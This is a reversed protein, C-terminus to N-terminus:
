LFADCSVSANEEYIETIFHTTYREISDIGDFLRNCMDQYEAMDRFNGILIVDSEGTVGYASIIAPEKRIKAAFRLRKPQPHDKTTITIIAKLSRGLKAADAIYIVKKLVGRKKLRGVRRLCTSATSSIRDALESNTLDGERQLIEVIKIDLKDM